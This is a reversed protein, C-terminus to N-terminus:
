AKTASPAVHLAPIISYVRWCCTCSTAPCVECNKTIKESQLRAADAADVHQQLDERGQLLDMEALEVLASQKERQTQEDQAGLLSQAACHELCVGVFLM